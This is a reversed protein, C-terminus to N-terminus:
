RSDDSFRVLRPPTGYLDPGRMINDITLDFPAASSSSPSQPATQASLSAALAVWGMFTSGAMVPHRM